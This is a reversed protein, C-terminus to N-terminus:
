FLKVQINKKLQIAIYINKIKINSRNQTHNTNITLKNLYNLDKHELNDFPIIIAQTKTKACKIECKYM